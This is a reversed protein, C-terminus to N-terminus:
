KKGNRDDVITHTRIDYYPNVCGIDLQNTKTKVVEEIQNRYLGGADKEM